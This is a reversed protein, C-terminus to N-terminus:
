EEEDLMGSSKLRKELQALRSRADKLEARMQPLRGLHANLRKYEELPQVPVGWWVGPRVIKGPLVGAKSGIVAGRRVRAHDGLGVQGGIVADDEIITSGSIGTQSAIVVRQGIDVNHGVQVLNDIKTGRGIRTRGLAARDVCTGAGIEVDDEIVVTGIQPFKHYGMDDRVYGFGDAGICVGAHLIVRDGLSVRDYLVATPHIICNDGITVDDGIVVGTELRTDEGIRSRAGVRAYPGVYATGSIRAASDVLATPHVLPERRRPPHLLEGILAFALKPHSVSLLARFPSPPFLGVADHPVILCSALCSAAVSFLNQDAVYAVDGEAATELGALRRVPIGADGHLQADVHSALEGVTFAQEKSMRNCCGPRPRLATLDL